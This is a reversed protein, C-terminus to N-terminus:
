MFIESDCYLLVISLSRATKVKHFSTAMNSLFDGLLFIQVLGRWCKRSRYKVFFLRFIVRLTHHETNIILILINPGVPHFITFPDM